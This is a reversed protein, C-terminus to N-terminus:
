VLLPADNTMLWVFAEGFARMGSSEASWRWTSGERTMWAGCRRWAPIALTSGSKVANAPDATDRLGMGVIVAFDATELPRMSRGRLFVGVQPRPLARLAGEAYQGGNMWPVARDFRLYSDLRAYSHDPRMPDPDIRVVRAVAYYSLDGGDARPRRFVVWDGVTSAAVAGYRNPFHYREAAEDDYGSGPKADFVAKL